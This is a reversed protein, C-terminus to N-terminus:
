VKEKLAKNICEACLHKLGSVSRWGANDAHSLGALERTAGCGDCTQTITIM